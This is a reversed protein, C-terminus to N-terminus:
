GTTHASSHPSPWETIRWDARTTGAASNSVQIACYARPSLGSSASWCPAGPSAGAASPLSMKVLAWGDHAEQWVSASAPLLEGIPGLRSSESSPLSRAYMSRAITSGAASMAEPNSSPM